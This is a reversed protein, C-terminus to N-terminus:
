VAKTEGKVMQWVTLVMIHFDLWISWNEIYWIDYEIRKRTRRENEIPDPSDGRLGHVQAWGTLGPRVRSRLKIEDVIESYVQNYPIFHPRPGVVSMDGKLINFFQPLEDLNTRRLINGVKTIRSDGFVVPSYTENENRENTALTRFKYFSFSKNRMGIRKQVFFVSGRSFIKILIAIIPILWTLFLIIAILSFLIDFTRKIFRWHAEALPEDRITIIPFNEFMSIRFKKSIFNFYDPIIHVRVAHRDCIKIIQELHKFEQIPLAVIVENINKQTVIKELDSIKGVIEVKLTEAPMDDLYGVFNYGFRRKKITLNYFNIAVEGAGIIIINQLKSEQLRLKGSLVKITQIRLSILFILLAAYYLIFNRTFLNEKAIFIFLISATIQVFTNKLINNFQYSFSRLNNDEYFGNVNSAFYWLFNLVALLIFMHNKAILTQFSQALIASLIFVINLLLLDLFLRLYYNSRQNVIM